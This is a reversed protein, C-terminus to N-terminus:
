GSVELVTKINMEGVNFVVISFCCCHSLWLRETLRKRFMPIPWISLNLCNELRLQLQLCISVALM